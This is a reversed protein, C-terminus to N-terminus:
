LRYKINRVELIKNVKDIQEDDLDSRLSQVLNKDVRFGYFGHPRQGYAVKLQLYDPNTQLLRFADYIAEYDVFYSSQLATYITDAIDFYESQPYTLWKTNIESQTTDINQQQQQQEGTDLKEGLLGSFFALIKDLFLFVVVVIGFNIAEKRNIRSM